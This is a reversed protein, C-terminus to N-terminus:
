NLAQELKNLKDVREGCLSKLQCIIGKLEKKQDDNMHKIIKFILKLGSRDSILFLLDQKDMKLINSCILNKSKDVEKSDSNMIMHIIGISMKCIKTYIHVKEAIYYSITVLCISSLSKILKNILYVGHKDILLMEVIPIVADLLSREEEDMKKSAIEDIYCLLINIGYFSPYIVEIKLKLIESIRKFHADFSKIMSIILESGYSNDYILLVIAEFYDVIKSQILHNTTKTVLSNIFKCSIENNIAKVLLEKNLLILNWVKVIQSDSLSVLLNEFQGIYSKEFCFNKWNELFSDLMKSTNKHLVHKFSENNNYSSLFSSYIQNSNNNFNTLTAESFYANDNTSVTTSMQDKSFQSIQPNVEKKLYTFTQNNADNSNSSSSKDYGSKSESSTKYTKDNISLLKLKILNNIEDYDAPKKDKEQFSKTKSNYDIKDKHLKNKMLIKDQPVKRKKKINAVSHTTYNPYGTFYYNQASNYYTQSYTNGCPNMQYNQYLYSPCNNNMNVYYSSYAPYGFFSPNNVQITKQQSKNPPIFAQSNLNLPSQSKNMTNQTNYKQDKKYSQSDM